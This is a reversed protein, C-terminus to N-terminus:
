AKGDTAEWTDADDLIEVLRDIKDNDPTLTDLIQILENVLPTIIESTM